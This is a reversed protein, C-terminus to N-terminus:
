DGSRRSTKGDIAVVEPGALDPVAARLSEAWAVFANRFAEHDLANFVDNLVDHCPIGQAFPLFRRLFDVHTEGWLEIDAFGDAGALEGCLVLLMIEDLPYLVKGRQRPDALGSFYDLFAVSQPIDM